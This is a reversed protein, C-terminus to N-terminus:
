AFLSESTEPAFTTTAAPEEAPVPASTDEQEMEEPTEAPNAQQDPEEQMAEPDYNTPVPEGGGEEFAIFEEIISVSVRQAGQARKYAVFADIRAKTVNNKYYDLAEAETAFIQGDVMWVNEIKM